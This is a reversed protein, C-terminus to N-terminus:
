RQLGRCNVCTVNESVMTTSMSPYNAGCLAKGPGAARHWVDRQWFDGRSSRTKMWGVRELIRSARMEENRTYCGRSLALRFADNTTFTQLRSEAWRTLTEEWVDAPPQEEYLPLRVMVVSCIFGDLDPHGAGKSQEESRFVMAAAESVNRAIVLFKERETTEVEFVSHQSERIM